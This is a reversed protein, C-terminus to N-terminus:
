ECLQISELDKQEQIYEIMGDLANAAKAISITSMESDETTHEWAADHSKNTLQSFSLNKNEKISKNLEELDSKSFIDMDVDFNGLIWEYGNVVTLENIFPNGAFYENEGRIFKAIDFITSPVPGYNMAIYTDESITRGYKILHQQDAFYLIKFSKHFNTKGGLEKIIWKLAGIAKEIEFTKKM